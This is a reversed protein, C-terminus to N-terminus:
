GSTRAHHSRKKPPPSPKDDMFKLHPLTVGKHTNEFSRSSALASKERINLSRAQISHIPIIGRSPQKTPRKKVTTM